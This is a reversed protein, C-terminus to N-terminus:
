APVVGRDDALKQSADTPHTIDALIAKMAIAGGVYRGVVRGRYMTLVIDAVGIIEELDTSTMVLGFGEDCFNRMLQYIDARAGVDVGRTPENMLLVGAPQGTTRGFLVKQQNGGSLDGIESGLRRKDVGVQEILWAAVRRLRSWSLIRVPM